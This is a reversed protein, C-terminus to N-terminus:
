EKDGSVALREILTEGDREARVWLWWRGARPLPVNAVFATGDASANFAADFGGQSRHERHVVVREAALVRGEADRMLARVRVGEASPAAESELRWGRAEASRRSQMGREYSRSAAFADGAIVADPHAIAVRLFALSGGIMALLCFVLAIPWPEWGRAERAAPTQRDTLAV